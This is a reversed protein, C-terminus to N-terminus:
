AAMNLLREALAELKAARGPGRCAAQFEARLMERNM